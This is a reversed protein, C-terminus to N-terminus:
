SVIYELMRRVIISCAGLFHEERLPVKIYGCHNFHMQLACRLSSNKFGFM